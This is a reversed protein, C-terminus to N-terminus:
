VLVPYPSMLALEPVVRVVIALKALMGPLALESGLGGDSYEM